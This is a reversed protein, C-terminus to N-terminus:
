GDRVLVCGLDGDGRREGMRGSHTAISTPRAGSIAWRGAAPRTSHRPLDVDRFGAETGDGYRVRPDEIYRILRERIRTAGLYPSSRCNILEKMGLIGTNARPTDIVYMYM